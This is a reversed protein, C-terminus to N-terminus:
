TLTMVLLKILHGSKTVFVNRLPKSITPILCRDQNDMDVPQNPCISPYCCATCLAQILTEDCLTCHALITILATLASVNICANHVAGHKGEVEGLCRYKGEM